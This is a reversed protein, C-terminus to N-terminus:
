VVRLGLTKSGPVHTLEHPNFIRTTVCLDKCRNSCGGTQIESALDGEKAEASQEGTAPTSDATVAVVGPPNNSNTM